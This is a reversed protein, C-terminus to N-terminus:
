RRVGVIMKGSKTLGKAKHTTGAPFEIRDGPHYTKRGESDFIELGGSLIVHVTHEDHTHEPTDTNPPLPCVRVDTFGEKKLQKVLEQKNM